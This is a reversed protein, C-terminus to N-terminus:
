LLPMISWMTKKKKKKKKGKKSYLYFVDKRLSSVNLPCINENILNIVIKLVTKM